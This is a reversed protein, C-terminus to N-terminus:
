PKLLDGFLQLYRDIARDWSSDRSMAAKRSEAHLASDALLGLAAEVADVLSQASFKRMFLGDGPPNERADLITDALGGTRTAIPLTGYRQAMMQSLGCPEFRSPMLLFDAAAYLPHVFDEDFPHLKLTEPFRAALEAFRRELEADGGGAVVLQVGLRALHPVIEGILDVGKQHAFRSAVAFMPIHAGIPLGMRRQLALKNDAKGAAANVIGYNRALLADTRPDYLSPDVGNLVGHLEKSRWSLLGELGYGFEPGAQIQKAYSPSVTTLADALQLGSKLFNFQGHFELKDFTFDKSSFGAKLATWKEFGGQYALNHITLVSKAGPFWTGADSLKLYAPILAAHWDHAHFIDPRLDMARAAELTARSFLIFREDNDQHLGGPGGYPGGERGFYGEHGILWIKVGRREGVWLEADEVRNDIVVPFALRKELAVGDLKLSKYKPLVLTVNHGRAALGRTEADVVDALGGTKIFGASEAAIVAINLPPARAGMRSAWDADAATKGDGPDESKSAAEPVPAFAADPLKAADPPKEPAPSAATKPAVGADYSSFFPTPTQGSLRPVTVAANPASASVPVVAVPPVALPVSRGPTSGHSALTRGKSALVPNASLLLSLTLASILRM